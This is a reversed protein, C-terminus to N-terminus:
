HKRQHIIVKIIVNCSKHPVLLYALLILYSRPTEKNVWITFWHLTIHFSRTSHNECNSGNCLRCTTCICVSPIGWCTAIILLPINRNHHFLGQPTDSLKYWRSHRSKCWWSILHNGQLLHPFRSICHSSPPPLLWWNDWVSPLSTWIHQGVIPMGFSHLCLSFCSPRM